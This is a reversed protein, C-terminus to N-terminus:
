RAQAQRRRYLNLTLEVEGIEVGLRRAIEIGDLGEEHLRLIRAVRGEPGGPPPVQGAEQANAVQLRRLESIKADVEALLLQLTELRDAVRRDVQRAFQDLQETLAAIDHNLPGADHGRAPRGYEARLRRRRASILAALVFGTAALLIPPLLDLLNSGQWDSM